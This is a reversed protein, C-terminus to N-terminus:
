RDKSKLKRLDLPTMCHICRHHSKGHYSQSLHCTECSIEYYLIKTKSKVKITQTQM